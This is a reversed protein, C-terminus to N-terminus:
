YRSIAEGQEKMVHNCSLIKWNIPFGLLVKLEEPRGELILV